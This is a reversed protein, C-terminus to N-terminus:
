SIRFFSESIGDAFLMGKKSLFFADKNELLSEKKCLDEIKKKESLRLGGLLSIQKKSVGWKTRLGTLFLENWVANSDLTEEGYWSKGVGGRSMYIHNNAVNWRRKIGDYSHASPGIGLYQQRQWYATNHKSYANNKAFNSVEYHEYGSEQLFSSLQEFQEVQKNEPLPVILGNAIDNKLKTKNEITLCYASIHPVGLSVVQKLFSLWQDSTLGPLGYILDVSVNNFGVGQATKVCNINDEHSHGRNMWKLDENKFSQLGISLRNIGIGKWASATKKSINEPNAELTVEVSPDISYNEHVTKLLCALEDKTLLSPTGGGFYISKLSTNLEKKRVILENLLSSIM